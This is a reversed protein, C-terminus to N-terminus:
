AVHAIPRLGLGGFHGRTRLARRIRKKDNRKTSARLEDILADIERKLQDPPIVDILKGVPRTPREGNHLSSVPPINNGKSGKGKGKARLAVPRTGKSGKSANKSGKSM